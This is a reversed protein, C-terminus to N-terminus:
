NQFPKYFHSHDAVVEKEQYRLHSVTRMYWTNKYYMYRELSSIYIMEIGASFNHSSWGTWAKGWRIKVIADTSYYDQMRRWKDKHLKLSDWRCHGSDDSLKVKQLLEEHLQRLKLIHLFHFVTEVLEPPLYM